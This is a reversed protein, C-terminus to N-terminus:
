PLQQEFFVQRLEEPQLVLPAQILLDDHTEAGLLAICLPCPHSHLHYSVGKYFHSLSMCTGQNPMGCFLTQLLLTSLPARQQRAKDSLSLQQPGM